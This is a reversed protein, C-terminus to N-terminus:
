FMIFSESKLSPSLLIIQIIEMRYAIKRRKNVPLNTVVLIVQKPSSWKPNGM